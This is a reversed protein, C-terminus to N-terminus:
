RQILKNGDVTLTRAGHLEKELEGASIEHYRLAVSTPYRNFYPNDHLYLKTERVDRMGSVKKYFEVIKPIVRPLVKVGTVGSKMTIVAIVHWTPRTNSKARAKQESTVRHSVTLNRGHAANIRNMVSKFIQGHPSSDQLGHLMIFYHIMEHIVTDEMVNEPLDYTINFRLQFDYHEIRGDTHRRVKSKCIGLYSSAESLLIMPMPLRGGFMRLNFEEFKRELWERTPIM